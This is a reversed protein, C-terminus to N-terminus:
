AAISDPVETVVLGEPLGGQGSRPLPPECGPPDISAVKESRDHAKDIKEKAKSLEADTLVGKDKLANLLAKMSYIVDWDVLCLQGNIQKQGKNIEDQTVKKKEQGNTDQETAM